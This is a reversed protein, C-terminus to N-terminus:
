ENLEATDDGDNGDGESEEGPKDMDVDDDTDEPTADSTGTEVVKAKKKSVFKGNEKRKKHKRANNIHVKMYDRIPWLGEFREKCFYTDKNSVKKKVLYLKDSDQQQFTKSYDVAVQKCASRLLEGFQAYHNDDDGLGCASQLNFGTRGNGPEGDPRDIKQIEHDTVSQPTNATVLAPKQRNNNVTVKMKQKAATSKAPNIPTPNAKAPNPQPAPVQAETGRTNPTLAASAIIPTSVHADGDTSAEAAAAAVSAQRQARRAKLEQLRAETRRLEDDEDDPLGATGQDKPTDTVTDGADGLFRNTIEGLVDVPRNAAVSANTNIKKKQAPRPNQKENIKAGTNGMDVDTEEASKKKTRGGQGGATGTKKGAANRKGKPDTSGPDKEYPKTAAANGQPTIAKPM